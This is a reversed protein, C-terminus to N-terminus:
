RHSVDFQRRHHAIKPTGVGLCFRSRNRCSIYDVRRGQLIVGQMGLVKGRNHAVKSYLPMFPATRRYQLNRLPRVLGWKKRPHVARWVFLLRCQSM